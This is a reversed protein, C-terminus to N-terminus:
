DLLRARRTLDQQVELIEPNKSRELPGRRTKKSHTCVVAITNQREGKEGTYIGLRIKNDAELNKQGQRNFTNFVLIDGPEHSGVKLYGSEVSINDDTIVEMALVPHAKFGLEQIEKPEPLQQDTPASSTKGVNGRISELRTASGM